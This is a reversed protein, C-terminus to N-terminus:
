DQIEVKELIEMNDLNIQFGKVKPQIVWGSLTPCVPIAFNEEILISILERYIGRREELDLISEGKNILSNYEESRFQSFNGPKWVNTTGFLASPDKNPRGYGTVLIEFDGEMMRPRLVATELIQIKADFGIKELDNQLITAMSRNAGDESALITVEIPLELGSKELLEKAKDLDYPPFALDEFYAISYDPVPYRWPEVLGKYEIRAYRDRNVAYSIAKRVLDNDVPPRTVNISLNRIVSAYGQISQLDPRQKIINEWSVASLGYAVDILGAQLNAVLTSEEALKKLIVRELLPLGEKWYQDFREFIVQSGQQWEKLTFPGTGIPNTKIDEITEENMIFMSDFLGFVGANPEDFSLRITYKDLIEIDKVMLSLERMNAGVNPDQYREITFKLDKAEFERGNHFLVGERLHITMETGEENFEWDTALVPIVNMSEDYMTLTNFIQHYMPWNVSPLQTPDFNYIETKYGITLEQSTAFIQQEGLSIIFLIMLIIGLCTCM